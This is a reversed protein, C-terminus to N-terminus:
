SGIVAETHDAVAMLGAGVTTAAAEAATTGAEVAAMLGTVAVATIAVVEAVMTLMVAAVTIAAKVAVSDAVMSARAAESGGAAMSVKEVSDETVATSDVGVMTDAAATIVVAAM